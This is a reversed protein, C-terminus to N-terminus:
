SKEGQSMADDIAADVDIWASKHTPFWDAILWIFTQKNKIFRFREADKRLAENEAKLQDLEKRLEEAIAMPCGECEGSLRENEDILDIVVQPECKAIFAAWDEVMISELWYRELWGMETESAEHALRRLESYDSM